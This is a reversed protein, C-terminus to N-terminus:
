GNKQCYIEVKGLAVPLKTLVLLDETRSSGREAGRRMRLAIQPGRREEGLGADGLSVHCQSHAVLQLRDLIQPLLHSQQLLLDALSISEHAKAPFGM